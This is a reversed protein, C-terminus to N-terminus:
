SGSLMAEAPELELGEDLLETVAQVMVGVIGVDYGAEPSISRGSNRGRCIGRNAHSPGGCAGTGRRRAPGTWHDSGHSSDSM